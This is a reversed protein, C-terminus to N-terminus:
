KPTVNVEISVNVSIKVASPPLLPFRLSAENSPESVDAPDTLSRARVRVTYLGPHAPASYNIPSAPGKAVERWTGDAQKAEVVYESNQPPAEFEVSLQATPIAPAAFVPVYCAALMAFFFLRSFLRKM